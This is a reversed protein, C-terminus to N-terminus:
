SFWLPSPESSCLSTEVNCATDSNWLAKRIYEKVVPLQQTQLCLVWVPSRDMHRPSFLLTKEKKRVTCLFCSPLGDLIVMGTCFFFFFSCNFFSSSSYFSVSLFNARLLPSKYPSGQLVSTMKLKGTGTHIQETLDSMGCPQPNPSCLTWTIMKRLNLLRLNQSWM